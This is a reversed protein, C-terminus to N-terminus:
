YKIGFIQYIVDLDRSGSELPAFPLQPRIRVDDRWSVSGDGLLMNMGSGHSFDDKTRLSDTALVLKSGELLRRRTNKRWDKHGVYQYNTYLANNTKRTGEYWEDALKSLQHEGEHSPCYFCDPSDCYHWQALRGLGDWHEDDLPQPVTSRAFKASPLPANEAYAKRALSLETPDPDQQDLVSAVPMRGRHDGAYMAIAHGIERQHAGCAVRRASERATSLTPMLLGTLLSTISLVVLLELLSFGGCSSRSTRQKNLCFTSSIHM